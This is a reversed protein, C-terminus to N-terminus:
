NLLNLLERHLGALNQPRLTYFFGVSRYGPKGSRTRNMRRDEGERCIAGAGPVAACRADPQSRFRDAQRGVEDVSESSDQKAVQLIM